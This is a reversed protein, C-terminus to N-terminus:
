LITDLGIQLADAMIEDKLLHAHSYTDNNKKEPEVHKYKYM